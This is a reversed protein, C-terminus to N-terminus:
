YKGKLDESLEAYDTVLSEIGFKPRGDGFNTLATIFDEKGHVAKLYKFKHVTDNFVISFDSWNYHVLSWDM